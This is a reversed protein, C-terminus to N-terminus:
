ELEVKLDFSLKGRVGVWRYDQGNPGDLKYDLYDWGTNNLNTFHQWDLKAGRAHAALFRQWNYLTAIEHGAFATKDGGIEQCSYYVFLYIESETHVISTQCEVDTGNKNSAMETDGASVPQWQGVMEVEYTDFSAEVRRPRPPAPNWEHQVLRMEGPVAVVRFGCNVGPRGSMRDASRCESLSNVWSGGRMLRVAENAPPVVFPNTGGPLQPSYGDLVFEVNGHMHRLGWANLPYASHDVRVPQKARGGAHIQDPSCQDTGAPGLSFAKTTGARCAYEWEAETPLRFRWGKPLSRHRQAIDSLEECFAKAQDYTIGTVPLDADQTGPPATTASPMMARFLGQSVECQSMYFGTEQLVKVPGENSERVPAAPDSGMVFSGPTLWRLPVEISKGGTQPISIVHRYGARREVSNSETIPPALPSVNKALFHRPTFLYEEDMATAALEGENFHFSQNQKFALDSVVDLRVAKPALWEGEGEVIIGHNAALAKFREREYLGKAGGGFPGIKVEAGGEIKIRNGENIADADLTSNYDYITRDLKLDDAYQPKTIILATYTAWPVEKQDPLFKTVVQELLRANWRDYDRIRVEVM